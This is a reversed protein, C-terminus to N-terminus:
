VTLISVHHFLECYQCADDASFNEEEKRMDCDSCVTVDNSIEDIDSALDELMDDDNTDYTIQEYADLAADHASTGTGTYAKNFATGHVGQGQFFQNHHVGHDIIEYKM